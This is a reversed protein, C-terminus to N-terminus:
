KSEKIAKNLLELKRAIDELLSNILISKKKVIRLKQRCSEEMCVIEAKITKKEIEQYILEMTWFTVLFFMIIFWAHYAYKIIIEEIKM